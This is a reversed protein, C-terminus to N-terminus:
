VHKKKKFNKVMKISEDPSVDPEMQREKTYDELWPGFRKALEADVEDTTYTKDNKLSEFGKTLEVDLQERTLSGAEIPKSDPKKM